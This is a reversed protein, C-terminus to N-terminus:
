EAKDKNVIVTKNEINRMGMRGYLSNLKLKNTFQLANNGELKDQLRKEYIKNVFENFIGVGREFKFGGIIEIKYGYNLSNKLLESFYLGTFPESPYYIEGNDKKHPILM